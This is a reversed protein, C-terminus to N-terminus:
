IHQHALRGDSKSIRSKSAGNRLSRSLMLAFVPIQLPIPEVSEASFDLASWHRTNMLEPNLSEVQTVDFRARKLWRRNIKESKEISEAIRSGGGKDFDMEVASEGSRKLDQSGTSLVQCEDAKEVRITRTLPERIFQKTRTRLFDAEVALDSDIRVALCDRWM